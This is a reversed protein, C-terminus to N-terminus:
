ASCSRCVTCGRAASFSPGGPLVGRAQTTAKGGVYRVAFFTRASGFSVKFMLGPCGSYWLELQAPKEPLPAKRVRLETLNEKSM